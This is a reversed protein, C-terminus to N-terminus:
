HKQFGLTTYRPEFGLGQYLHHAAQNEANYSITASRMGQEHMVRLGHRLLARALGRRQFAPRTGVPEFQGIRNLSDFRLVAFAAIRNDPAIVLLEHAPDYGPKQMVDDRYSAPTWNGGFVANRADALGDCDVPSAGRIQFGPPLSAPPPTLLERVVIRDWLRYDRFGLRSLQAIRISDCDYVDSNVSNEDQNGAPLHCRTINCATQLMALESGTGRFTPAAALYFGAGFLGCIAFAILEGAYEWGQVLEPPRHAPLVEYIRHPIDGIHGYGCAGVATIWEALAAQLRPLDADTYPRAHLHM